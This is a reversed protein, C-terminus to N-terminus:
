SVQFVALHASRYAPYTSNWLESFFPSRWTGQYEFLPIDYPKELDVVIMRINYKLLLLRGALYSLSPLRAFDASVQSLETSAFWGGPSVGSIGIFRVHFPLPQVRANVGLNMLVDVDLGTCYPVGPDTTVEQLLVANNGYVCGNEADWSDLWSNAAQAEPTVGPMAWYTSDITRSVRTVNWTVFAVSGAIVVVAAIAVPIASKRHTRSTLAGVGIAGVMVLVSTLIDKSYLVIPLGLFGALLFGGVIVHPRFLNPRTALYMIGIITCLLNVPGVRTALFIIANLLFVLPSTGEFLASNSLQYDLGFSSLVGLQNLGTLLLLPSIGIAGFFGVSAIRKRRLAQQRRVVADILPVLVVFPLLLLFSLHSALMVTSVVALLLCRRTPNRGTSLTGGPTTLFLFLPTLAVNFSREDLSWTLTTFFGYSLSAMLVAMLAIDMRRTLQRVLVLTGLGITLLLVADYILVTLGISVGALLSFSAALFPVGSSDSGPYVGIYSLPNVVWPALGNRAIANTMRHYQLADVGTEFQLGVAWWSLVALEIAVLILLTSRKM